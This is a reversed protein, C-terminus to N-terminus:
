CCHNKDFMDAIKPVAYVSLDSDLKEKVQSVIKNNAVIASYLYNSTTDIYLIM